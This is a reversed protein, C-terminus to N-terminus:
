APSASPTRSAARLPESHVQRGMRYISRVPRAPRSAQVEPFRWALAVRAVNYVVDLLARRAFSDTFAPGNEAEPLLAATRLIAAPNRPLTSYGNVGSQELTIWNPRLYGEECIHLSVPRGKAVRIAERHVPRCDGFLLIDTVQLRDILDELFAPWEELSGRFSIAGPLSWFLVDGGNFNVRCVRHGRQRLASGLRRMYSSANGQLFLFCRRAAGRRM